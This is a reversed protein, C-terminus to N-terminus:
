LAPRTGLRIVPIGCHFALGKKVGEGPPSLPLTGTLSFFSQPSPFFNESVGMWTGRDVGKFIGYGLRHRPLDQLRFFAALYREALQQAPCSLGGWLAGGGFPPTGENKLLDGDPLDMNVYEYQM